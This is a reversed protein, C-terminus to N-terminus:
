GEEVQETISNNLTSKISVIIEMETHSIHAETIEIIASKTNFINKNNEVISCFHKMLEQNKNFGNM